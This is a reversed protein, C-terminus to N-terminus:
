TGDAVAAEGDRAVSGVHELRLDVAKQALVGETFELGDLRALDMDAPGRATMEEVREEVELPDAEASAEQQAETRVGHANRGLDLLGIDRHGLVRAKNGRLIAAARIERAAGLLLRTFIRQATEVVLDRFAPVAARLM